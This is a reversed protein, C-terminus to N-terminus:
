QPKDHTEEADGSLHQFVVQIKSSWKRGFGQWFMRGNLAVPQLVSLTVSSAM